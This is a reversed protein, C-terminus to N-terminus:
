WFLIGDLVGVISVTRGTLTCFTCLNMFVKRQKPLSTYLPGIQIYQHTTDVTLPWDANTM